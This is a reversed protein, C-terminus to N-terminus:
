NSARIRVDLERLVGLLDGSIEAQDVPLDTLTSEPLVLFQVYAGPLYYRPNKGFLLMGAVTPVHHRPDFFRRSALQDEIDRHNAAIIDPDIVEQRYAHFQAMALDDLGAEGIPSADFSRAQSVRREILIREEQESATAKRPGVRVWAQGKYRVP